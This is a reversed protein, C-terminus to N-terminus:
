KYSISYKYKNTIIEKLSYDILDKTLQYVSTDFVYLDSGIKKQKINVKNLHIMM